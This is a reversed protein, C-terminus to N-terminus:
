MTKRLPCKKNDGTCGDHHNTLVFKSHIEYCKAPDTIKLERVKTLNLMREDYIGLCLQVSFLTNLINRM